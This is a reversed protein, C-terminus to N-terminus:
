KIIYNILGTVSRESNKARVKLQEYVSGDIRLLIKIM